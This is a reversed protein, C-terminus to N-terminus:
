PGAEKGEVDLRTATSIQLTIPDGSPMKVGPLSKLHATLTQNLTSHNELMRGDDVALLARGEGASDIRLDLELGQEELQALPGVKRLAELAPTLVNNFRFEVVAARARGYRTKGAYRMTSEGQANFPFVDTAQADLKRRWEEGPTVAHDPYFATGSMQELFFKMVQRLPERFPSDVELFFDAAGDFNLLKGGRDFHLTLTRGSVSRVFEEQAQRVSDKTARPVRDAFTSQIEFREFHNEVDAAGDPQAARVTVTNEQRTTLETPLPPLFAELGPPTSRVGSRTETRTQYLMKQGPRYKRALTIKRGWAHAPVASTLVLLAAIPVRWAGPRASIPRTPASVRLDDSLAGGPGAARGESELRLRM